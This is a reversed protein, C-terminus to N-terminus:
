VWAVKNSRQHIITENSIMGCRRVKICTCTDTNSQSKKTWAVCSLINIIFYKYCYFNMFGLEEICQILTITLFIINFPTVTRELWYKFAHVQVWMGVTLVTKDDGQQTKAKIQHQRKEYDRKFMTTRFSSPM